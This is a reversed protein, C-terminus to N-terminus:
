RVRLWWDPTDTCQFKAHYYQCQPKPAAAPNAQECKDGLFGLLGLGPNDSQMAKVMSAVFATFCAVYVVLGFATHWLLESYVPDDSSCPIDPSSAM